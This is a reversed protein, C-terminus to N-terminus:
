IHILSLGVASLSVKLSLGVIEVLDADLTGILSFAILFSSSIEQM